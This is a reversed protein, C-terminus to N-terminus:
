LSDFIARPDRNAAPMEELVADQINGAAKQQAKRRPTKHQGRGDTLLRASLVDELQERRVYGDALAYTEDMRRRHEDTLRNNYDRYDALARWDQETYDVLAMPVKTKAELMYRLTGDESVALAHSMDRPDYRLVWRESMHRRMDTDMCDFKHEVGNLTLRIGNPTLMNGRGTNGFALLYGELNLPRHMATDGEAWARRMVEFKRSREIEMIKHIQQECEERDPFYYKMRNTHDDNSRRKATINHGANNALAWLYESELYGFYREVPKAKANGVSAPTVYKALAGYKPTMDKIAFHDSQIQWPAYYGGLLERTHGVANQLAETILASNEREGIAYGIPYNCMVDTVVEVVLRNWYSATVHGHADTRREQYFLEATWGDLSWMKLPMDPRQRDVQMLRTNRYAGRGDRSLTMADEGAKRIEQVRRRDIDIGLTAAVKAVQADNLKAGNASLAEVVARVEASRGRHNSAKGTLGHVLVEYGHLRYENYKKRLRDGSTPLSNPWEVLNADIEGALAAFERKINLKLRSMEAARGKEELLEGIADLIRANNWLETLKEPKLRGGDKVRVQDFFEYAETDLLMAERRQLIDRLLSQRSMQAPDCGLAGIVTAKLKTGMSQWDILATRGNGGRRLSRIHGRTLASNYRAQGITEALWCGSIGTHGNHREVINNDM